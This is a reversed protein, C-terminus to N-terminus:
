IFGVGLPDTMEGEKAPPPPPPPAPAPSALRPSLSSGNRMEQVEGRSVARMLSPTSVGASAGIISSRSTASSNARRPIPQAVTPDLPLGLEGLIYDSSGDNAGGLSGSAGGPNDVNGGSGSTSNDTSSSNSASIPPASTVNSSAFVDRAHVPTNKSASSGGGSGGLGSAGGGTTSWPNDLLMSPVGPRERVSAWPNSSGQAFTSPRVAVIRERERERARERESITMSSEAGWASLEDRGRLEGGGPAVSSKEGLEGDSGAGSGNSSSNVRLGSSAFDKAVGDYATQAATLAAGANSSIKGWMSRLGGGTTSLFDSQPRAPLQRSRSPSPPGGLSPVPSPTSRMTTYPQPSRSSRPLPSSARQSDPPGATLPVSSRLPSTSIREQAASSLLTLTTAGPEPTANPLPPTSLTPTSIVPSSPTTEISDPTSAVLPDEEANEIPGVMDSGQAQAVVYKGNMEEDSRGYLEHWFRLDKPNPFLVGQDAKPQRSAPDDLSPDYTPNLYEDRRPPSNMWDWISVTQDYALRREKESNFLFSGFQCSYLHYHLEHLFHENFEFRDPFQRQVNRVTELFQHFVPSTEKVHHNSAFRNQVSAFFAQAAGAGEAGGAGEVPTLFFKESSLHGCRDLFRHGFSLWDKEVLIQFGRITRYFPDLCLQAVASLQSTRDWGDSCHILVHSNNVHVNRIIIITGELIASIHRLWGSRRLASRDVPVLPANSNPDGGTLSAALLETERLAEVVKNLSDRMTHINDIGLYAKRCDKYHDMNETGAGKATNAMANTTPRADIILNTTQAGFVPTVAGARSDPSYHSQFVAEILKEDQVSRANTLGVM